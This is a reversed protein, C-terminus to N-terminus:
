KSALEALADQLTKVLREVDEPPMEIWDTSVRADEADKATHKLGVLTKGYVVRTRVSTFQFALASTM